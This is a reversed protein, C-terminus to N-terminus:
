ADYEIYWLQIYETHGNIDNVIYYKGYENFFAALNAMYEPSINNKYKYSIYNKKFDSTLSGDLILEDYYKKYIVLLDNLWFKCESLSKDNMEKRNNCESMLISIM